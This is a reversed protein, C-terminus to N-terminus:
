SRRSAEGAWAPAPRAAARAREAGAPAVPDRSLVSLRPAVPIPRIHAAPLTRTTAKSRRSQQRLRIRPPPLALAPRLGAGGTPLPACGGESHLVRAIEDPVALRRGIRLPRAARPQGQLDDHVVLLTTLAGHQVPVGLGLREQLFDDAQRREPTHAIKLDLRHVLVSAAGPEPAEHAREGLVADLDADEGDRHRELAVGLGGRRDHFGAVLDHAVAPAPDVVLEDALLDLAFMDSTGDLAERAHGPASREAPVRAPETGVRAAQDDLFASKEVVGVGVVVVQWVPGEHGALGVEDNGVGEVVVVHLEPQEAAESGAVLPESVYPVGEVDEIRLAGVLWLHHREAQVHPEHAPGPACRRERAKEVVDLAVVVHPDAAPDVDRPVPDVLVRVPGSLSSSPM